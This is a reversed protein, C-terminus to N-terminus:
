NMKNILQNIKNERNGYLGGDKFHGNKRIKIDKLDKIINLKFPVLFQVIKDFHSGMTFIEHVLDEVCLVGDKGFEKEILANDILPTRKRQIFGRGRKKILEKVSKLNPYGYTVFPEVTQIMQVTEPTLKVFVGSCVSKLRLKNLIKQTTSSASQGKKVRIVFALKGEEPPNVYRQRKTQRKIRKEDSEQARYM